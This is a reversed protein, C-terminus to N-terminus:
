RLEEPLIRKIEELIIEPATQVLRREMVRKSDAYGRANNGNTVTIVNNFCFIKKSGARVTIGAYGLVSPQSQPEAEPLSEIILM